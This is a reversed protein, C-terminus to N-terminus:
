EKIFTLIELDLSEESIDLLKPKDILDNYSGSFAVKALEEERVLTNAFVGNDDFRIYTLKSYDLASLGLIIDDKISDLFDILCNKAEYFEITITRKYNSNTNSLDIGLYHSLDKNYGDQNLLYIVNSSISKLELDYITNKSEYTGIEDGVGSLYLEAYQTASNTNSIESFIKFKVSWPTNFNIPKISAYYVIDNNIQSVNDFIKSSLINTSRGLCIWAENQYRWISAPERVYYFKDPLPSLIIDLDEENDIEIFDSINIRENDFDFYLNQGDKELILQGDANSVEELKSQITDILKLRAM